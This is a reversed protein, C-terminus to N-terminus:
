INNQMKIPKMLITRSMKKMAVEMFTLFAETLSGQPVWLAGEMRCLGVPEHGEMPQINWFDAFEHFGQRNKNHFKYFCTSFRVVKTHLSACLM